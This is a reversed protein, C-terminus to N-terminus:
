RWETFNSCVHIGGFDSYIYQKNTIHVNQLQHSRGIIVFRSIGHLLHTDILIIFTIICNSHFMNGTFYFFRLRTGFSDLSFDNEKLHKGLGPELLIKLEAIYHTIATYFIIETTTALRGRTWRIKCIGWNPSIEQNM